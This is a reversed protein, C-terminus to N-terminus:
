PTEEAGKTEDEKMITHQIQAVTLQAIGLLRLDEGKTANTVWVEDSTRDIVGRIILVDHRDRLEEVMDETTVDSLNSM